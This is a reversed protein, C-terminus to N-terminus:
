GAPIIHPQHTKIHNQHATHCPHGVPEIHIQRTLCNSAALAFPATSGGPHACRKSYGGLHLLCRQLARLLARVRHLASGHLAGPWCRSPLFLTCPFCFLGAGYPLCRVAREQINDPLRYCSRYCPVFPLVPLETATLGSPRVACVQIATRRQIYKVVEYRLM